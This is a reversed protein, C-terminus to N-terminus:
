SATSGLSQHLYVALRRRARTLRSEIAKETCAFRLALEAVSFGNFYKLRLLEAAENPLAELGAELAEDALSGAREASPLVPSAMAYEKSQKKLLGAYHKRRRALDFLANRAVTLIWNHWHDQNDTIRVRRAIKLYTEQLAEQALHSDGRAVVLLYRLLMGHYAEHFRQWAEDEGRAMGRTLHLVSDSGSPPIPAAM